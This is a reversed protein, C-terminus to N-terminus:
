LPRNASALEPRSDCSYWGKYGVHFEPLVGSHLKAARDNEAAEVSEPIVELTIGEATFMTGASLENLSDISSSVVKGMIAPFKLGNFKAFTM